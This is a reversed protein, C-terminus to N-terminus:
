SFVGKTRLSFRGTYINIFNLSLSSELYGLGGVLCDGFYMGAKVILAGGNQFGDGKMNGDINQEKAKFIISFCSYFLLSYM